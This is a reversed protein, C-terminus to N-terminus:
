LMMLLTQALFLLGQKVPRIRNLKRPLNIQKLFLNNINCYKNKKFNLKVVSNSNSVLPKSKANNKSTKFEM